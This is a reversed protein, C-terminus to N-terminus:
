IHIDKGPGNVDMHALHALLNSIVINRGHFPYPIFEIFNLAPKKSPHNSARNTATVMEPDVTNIRLLDLPKGYEENNAEPTVTKQHEKTITISKIS